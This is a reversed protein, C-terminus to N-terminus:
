IYCSRTLTTGLSCIQTQYAKEQTLGYINRMFFHRKCMVYKSFPTDNLLWLVHFVIYVLLQHKQQQETKSYM